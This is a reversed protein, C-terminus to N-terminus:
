GTYLFQTKRLARGVGVPVLTPVDAACFRGGGDDGDGCGAEAAVDDLPRVCVRVSRWVATVSNRKEASVKLGCL